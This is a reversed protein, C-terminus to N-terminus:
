NNAYLIKILPVCCLTRLFSINLAQRTKFINLEVLQISALFVAVILTVWFIYCFTCNAISHVFYNNNKQMGAKLGIKELVLLVFVTLTILQFYIEM